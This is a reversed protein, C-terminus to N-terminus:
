KNEITRMSLDTSDNHNESCAWGHIDRAFMFFSYSFDVLACKVLAPDVEVKGVYVSGDEWNEREEESSRVQVNEGGM